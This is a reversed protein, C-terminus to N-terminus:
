VAGTGRSGRALERIDPVELVSKPYGHLVSNIMALGVEELTSVNRPFLANLVPYTRGMLKYFSQVHQQGPLPRMFGPRFNYVKRFPLGALANEAKGKVRAWMVRGHESSDAHAGSVHCFTMLADLQVLTRAFHLATDYTVHTYAAETLGSSSIGACYFCADYGRVHPELAALQMFDPVILQELKPHTITSRTRSVSLVRQVAPQALCTLLVGEGVFGTAGTLVIKLGDTM